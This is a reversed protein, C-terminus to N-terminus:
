TFEMQSIPWEEFVGDTKTLIIQLGDQNGKLTKEDLGTIIKAEM